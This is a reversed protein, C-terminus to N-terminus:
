CANAKRIALMDKEYQLIQEWTLWQPKQDEAFSNWLGKMYSIQEEVEGAWLHNGYIQGNGLYYNCDMRMRDLMQYRFSEEHDLLWELNYKDM